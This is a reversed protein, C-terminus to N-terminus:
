RAVRPPLRHFLRVWDAPALDEPRVAPNLGASLLVAAPDAPITNRLFTRLMKRRHLFATRVFEAFKALQPPAVPPEAHPQLRMMVSAVKPRPWFAQPPLIAIIEVHALLRTLVSVPGYAPSNQVAILREGVEKQITVVLRELPARQVLLNMLLPTAVQYPLNAVLKRGGGPGPPHLELQQLVFPNVDHKAALIDGSFLVLRPNDGCRARIVDFLGRDLEVAIVQAGAALLCETLSGTGAGVELVVDAPQLEAAGVLRQLLNLDILFNQGLRHRPALGAGALLARIESQTQGPM